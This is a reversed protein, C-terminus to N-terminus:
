SRRRPPYLHLTPTSFTCIRHASCSTPRGRCENTDLIDFLSKLDSLVLAYYIAPGYKMRLSARLRFRDVGLLYAHASFFEKSRAGVIGECTSAPLEEMADRIDRHLTDLLSIRIEAEGRTRGLWLARCAPQEAKIRSRKRPPM